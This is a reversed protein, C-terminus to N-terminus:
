GEKYQLTTPGNRDFIQCKEGMLMTILHRDQPKESATKPIAEVVQLFTPVSASGLASACAPVVAMPDFGADPVIAAIIEKEGPTSDPTVLGYVYVDAIGPMAAITTEIARADVFDGNRRISQGDRHSFYLWGQEDKWGIDGTHFWGGRTKAISSQPDGLYTVPAITGDANQFCIEGLEGAPLVLGEADMIEARGGTPPRGISGIPGSGPPNLALGGEAAGFFEFIAVGFREEFERWMSVPMGASLVYRVQHSRDFPGSPEAFIATAMGGLLNFTTCEYRSLIEWLRSKTFQRSIFLPLQSSLANGLTILQANAHTLSLGTYLKDGPRLGISEGLTAVAAYRSHPALIAKPDGTTGSTFLMQMPADIPRPRVEDVPVSIAQISGLSDYGAEPEADDIVWVWQLKPLSERIASLHPVVERSVIAGRCGSFRLMYALKEGRTRPDVPVFVTGAIESAIMAEVFEPHNRMIIAFADQEAMGAGRLAGAIARAGILLDDFSRTEECLEGAAGVEVFTLIPDPSAAAVGDLVMQLLTKPPGNM